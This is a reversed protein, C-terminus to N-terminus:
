FEASSKFFNINCLRPIIPSHFSRARCVVSASAYIKEKPEGHFCGEVDVVFVDKSQEIKVVFTSFSSLIACKKLVSVLKVRAKRYREM